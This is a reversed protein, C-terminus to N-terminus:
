GVRELVWTSEGVGKDVRICGPLRETLEPRHSIVGIVRAGDQRLTELADTVEALSQTDLTGFGEDIFLSDMRLAGSAHLVEDSLQLALCLSAMFTEGGSLTEARRREGANDHDIVYFEGADWEMTYRRSMQRLRTSAGAVLGRFAEELLYDQFGDSRLDVAMESTVALRARLAEAETTLQRARDM